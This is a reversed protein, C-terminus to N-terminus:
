LELNTAAYVRLDAVTKVELPFVVRLKCKRCAIAQYTESILNWDMAGGCTAHNPTNGYDFGAKSEDIGAKLRLADGYKSVTIDNSIVGDLGRCATDLDGARSFAVTKDNPINFELIDPDAGQVGRARAFFQAGRYKLTLLDPCDETEDECIFRQAHGVDMFRTDAELAARLQVTAPTPM